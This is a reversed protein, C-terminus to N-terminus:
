AKGGTRMTVIDGDKFTLGNWADIHIGNMTKAKELENALLVDSKGEAHVSNEINLFQLSLRVSIKSM